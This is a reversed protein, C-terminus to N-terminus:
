NEAYYFTVTMTESGQFKEGQQIEYLAGNEDVYFEGKTVVAQLPDEFIVRDNIEIYNYTYGDPTQENYITATGDEGFVITAEATANLATLASDFDAKTEANGIANKWNEDTIQDLYGQSKLNSLMSWLWETSVVKADTVVVTKGRFNDNVSIWFAVEGNEDYHWLLERSYLYESIKQEHRSYFFVKGSITANLTNWRSQGDEYFVYQLECGDFASESISSVTSPIIIEELSTCGDFVEDGITKVGKLSIECLESCGKLAGADLAIVSSPLTLTQIDTGALATGISVIGEPVVVSPQVSLVSHIAKATLDYLIGNVFSYKESDSPLTLTSPTGDFAGMAIVTDKGLIVVEDVNEGVFTDQPIAIISSPLTLTGITGNGSVLERKIQTVPKFNCMAPIEVSDIDEDVKIQILTTFDEYDETKFFLGVYTWKAFIDTVRGDLKTSSTLPTTFAEDCFLGDLRYGNHYLNDLITLDSPMLGTKIQEGSILAQCVYRYFDIASVELSWDVNGVVIGDFGHVAISSSSYQWDLTCSAYYETFKGNEDMGESGKRFIAETFPFQEGPAVSIGGEAFEWNHYKIGAVEPATPATLIDGANCTMSIVEDGTGTFYHFDIFYRTTVEGDGGSKDGGGNDCGAFCLLTALALALAIIIKTIKM